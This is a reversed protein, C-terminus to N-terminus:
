SPTSCDLPSFVPVLEDSLLPVSCAGQTPEGLGHRVAFHMDEHWLDFKRNTTSIQVDVTPAEDQFSQLRPVLGQM